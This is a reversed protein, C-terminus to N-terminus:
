ESCLRTEKAAATSLLPGNAYDTPDVLGASAFALRREHCKNCRGCHREGAPDICSFTLELPFGAGLRMVADKHLEALPRWIAVHGGTAEALMREFTAFFAPTADPFPNSALPGLAIQGIGNLQCWLAAKLLLLANRGPLYVAEDPTLADPTDHATISWHDGYVDGMPMEFVVLGRAGEPSVAALLRRVATLEVSEWALGCRVYFPQADIGQKFLQCLLIGSDLGGSVLLGVPSKPDPPNLAQM